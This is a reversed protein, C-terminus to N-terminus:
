IFEEKIMQVAIYLQLYLWFGIQASRCVYSIVSVMKFMLM